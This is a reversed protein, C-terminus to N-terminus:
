RNGRDDEGDLIRKRRDARQRTREVLVGLLVVSAGAATVALPVYIMALGGILMLLGGAIALDALIGLSALFLRHKTPRNM